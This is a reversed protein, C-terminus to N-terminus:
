IFIGAPNFENNLILEILKKAYNTRNVDKTEFLIKYNLYNIVM